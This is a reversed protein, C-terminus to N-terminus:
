NFYYISRCVNSGHRRYSVAAPKGYSSYNYLLGGTFYLDNNCYWRRYSSSFWYITGRNCCRHQRQDMHRRGTNHDRKDYKGCMNRGSTNDGGADPERNCYNYISYVPQLRIRRRENGNIFLNDDNNTDGNPQGAYIYIRGAREVFLGNCWYGFCPERKINGNYGRM